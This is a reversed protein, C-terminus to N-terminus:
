WEKWMWQFGFNSMHVAFWAEIRRVVECDLGQDSSGGLWTFVRRMTRGVPPAVTNPSLKCLETIVSGYYLLSIPSEPLMLM